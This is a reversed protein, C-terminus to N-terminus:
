KWAAMVSWMYGNVMIESVTPDLIISNIPGFGLVEDNIEGIIKLRNTRTTAPYEHDLIFGVIEEIKKKLQDQIEPDDSQDLIDSDIEKLLTEHVKKKINKLPDTMNQKLQHGITSREVKEATEDTVKKEKELREMLSM